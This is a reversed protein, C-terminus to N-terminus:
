FKFKWFMSSHSDDVAYHLGDSYLDLHGYRGIEERLLALLDKYRSQKKQLVRLYASLGLWMTEQRRLKLVPRVGYQLEVNQIQRVILSHMYRFTRKIIHFLELKSTNVDPTTRVYCHFKMACLLFAQYINLRVTGPSNITSDYFIPHCKPRMYHCLKSQLYKMSSHMKVTITSSILIDLYRTYDAQIELTECNILLGSWPIFSFGDDGRYIRNCCHESNSVEFNFGYKADNMYCNYYSFGRRMRNFFKQAHEKSFSIFIFDDIFRMLLSEPTSVDVESNLKGDNLFELLVSNELHGYYLSCLNPSLKSGQAIGVRQSYFNKGIKLINCKVQNSLFHHIDEKRINRIKGQDVLIGSGSQLQISFDCIDNGNSISVDSNFHYTANNSRNCVVKTCKRLVYDDCKLADKVVKLMLDHDICDFAKSVDAVVVYIKFKEKLHSRVSPLFHCLKQHVNNYDFVSSGFLEPKKDRVKKIILHCTDLLGHKSQAKLNVLPRMDKAKPVFRVRSSCGSRRVAKRSSGRLIKFNQINLSAIANSTLNRWVTKPYYYAEYRRSERETVYFYTQVLPIVIDFFMWSIWCHLLNCLKKENSGNSLGIEKAMQASCFCDSLGINSIWSYHSVKLEAICDSLHFKEFRRLKIFNWINIRLSRKSYSNGLLPEPVIRTLVAWVFSVVQQHTSYAELQIYSQDFHASKGGTSNAADALLKSNVSCHKLLLKKYQCRKSNRILKNMLKALFTPLCNSNTTTSGCCDPKMFMACCEKVGFIHRILSLVDPRKRKNLIHNGHFINYSIRRNYFIAHRSILSDVSVCKSSNLMLCSFCIPGSNPHLYNPPGIRPSKSQIRSTSYGQSPGIDFVSSLPKEHSLVGCPDKTHSDNMGSSMPLSNNDVSPGLSHTEDNLTACLDESLVDLVIFDSSNIKSWGTSLRDESCIQKQKNHRQWSYLRKRKRPNQDDLISCKKSGSASPTSHNCGKSLCNLETFKATGYSGSSRLNDFKRTNMDPSSFSINSNNACGGSVFQSMEPSRCLYSMPCKEIMSQPQRDKAKNSMSITKQLVVNLALGTVQFFINKKVPLFISSHRLIYCMLLDGIRRLLIDWSSSSVLDRISLCRPQGGERSGSCLVNKMTCARDEM